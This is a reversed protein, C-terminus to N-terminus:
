SAPASSSGAASWMPSGLTCEVTHLGCVNPQVNHDVSYFEISIGSKFEAPHEYTAKYQNSETPGAIERHAGTREGSWRSTRQDRVRHCVSFVYVTGGAYLRRFEQFAFNM